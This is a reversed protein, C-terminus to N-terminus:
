FKYNVGVCSEWNLFDTMFLITIRKDIKLDVGVDFSTKYVRALDVIGNGETTDFFYSQNVGVYLKSTPDFQYSGGIGAKVTQTYFYFLETKSRIDGYWIKGYMGFKSVEHNYLLGPSMNAPNLTVYLQANSTISLMAVLMMLGLKKM